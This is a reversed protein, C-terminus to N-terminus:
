THMCAHSHQTPCVTLCRCAYFMHAICPIHRDSLLLCTALTYCISTRSSCPFPLLGGCVSEAPKRSASASLRSLQRRRRASGMDSLDPARAADWDTIVTRKRTCWRMRRGLPSPLLLSLRHSILMRRSCNDSEHGPGILNRHNTSDSTKGAFAFHPLYLFVSCAVKPINYPHTKAKSPM